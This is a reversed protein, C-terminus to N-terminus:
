NNAPKTSKWTISPPTKNVDLHHLFFSQVLTNNPPLIIQNGAFSLTPVANRLPWTGVPEWGNSSSINFSTRVTEWKKFFGYDIQSAAMVRKSVDIDMRSPDGDVLVGVM